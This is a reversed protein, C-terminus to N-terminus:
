GIVIPKKGKVGEKLDRPLEWEGKASPWDVQYGEEVPNFKWKSSIFDDNKFRELINKLLHFVDKGWEDITDETYDFYYDPEATWFIRAATGKDCIESKVIWDLVEAGDDWNYVSALFYQEASNLTKFKEFDPEVIEDNEDFSFEYFHKKIFNVRHPLIM